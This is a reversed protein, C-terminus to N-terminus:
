VVTQLKKLLRHYTPMDKNAKTLAELKGARIMEEIRLAIWSDGIGPRYKGLVRGIVV